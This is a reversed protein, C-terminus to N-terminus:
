GEPGIFSILVTTVGESETILISVTEDGRTFEMSAMGPVDTSQTTSSWGLGPLQENYFAVVDAIPSTTNYSLTAGFTSVDTADAMKPFDAGVPADCNAPPEITVPGNVDFLNYEWEMHGEGVGSALLTGDASMTERVVYGGDNAIWINVEYSTFGAALAGEVDTQRYHTTAVGNVQENTSIVQASSLDSDSLWTDPSFPPSQDPTEGEQSTTICTAEEGENASNMYMVDGIQTFEFSGSEGTDSTTSDWRTYTAPPDAVYAQIATYSGEDPNGEEDTGSWSMTFESRFSTFSSTDIGPYELGGSAESGGGVGEEGTGGDQKSGGQAGGTEEGPLPALTPMVWLTATPQAGPLGPAACALSVILLVAMVCWMWPSRRQAM